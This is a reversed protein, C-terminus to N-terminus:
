CQVSEYEDLCLGGTTLGGVGVKSVRGGAVALNQTELTAYVTAWRAGGGISAIKQDHSIAIADLNSLDITIGNEINASGAWATHGGGRLAVQPKDTIAPDQIARVFESLDHVSQPQFICSPSLKNEFAAFYSGDSAVYQPSGPLLIRDNFSKVLNTCDVTTTKQAQHIVFCLALLPLLNLRHVVFIMTVIQIIDEICDLM